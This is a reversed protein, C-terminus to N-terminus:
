YWNWQMASYIDEVKAHVDAHIAPARAKTIWDAQDNKIIDMWPM